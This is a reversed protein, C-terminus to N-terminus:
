MSYVHSARDRERELLDDLSSDAEVKELLEALETELLESGNSIQDIILGKSLLVMQTSEMNDEGVSLVSKDEADVIFLRATPSNQAVQLVRSELLKSSDEEAGLFLVM